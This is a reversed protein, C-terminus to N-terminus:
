ILVVQKFLAIQQLVDKKHTRLASEFESTNESYVVSLAVQLVHQYDSIAVPPVAGNHYLKQYHKKIAKVSKYITPKLIVTRQNPDGAVPNEKEFYKEDVLNALCGIENGFVPDVLGACKNELVYDTYGARFEWLPPATTSNGNSVKSNVAVYNDKQGFVNQFLLLFPIVLILIAKSSM